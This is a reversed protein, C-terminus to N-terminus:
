QVLSQEETSSLKLNVPATANNPLVGQIRRQLTTRSVEYVRAAERYSQIQKSQLAQIALLYRGEQNSAQTRQHLPM